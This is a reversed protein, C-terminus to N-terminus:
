ENQALLRFIDSETIIGILRQNVVVPIGAVKHKLMLKATDGITADPTITVPNTTMIKDVSLNAWFLHLDYISLPSTDSPRAESIDNLTVLGVLVGENLVPLRRISAAKMLNHAEPLKTKPGIVIPDLTMWDKVLAEKV